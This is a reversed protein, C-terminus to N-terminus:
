VTVRVVARTMSTTASYTIHAKGDTPDRYAALLPIRVEGSAGVTYVRDPYTDGTPLSGPTALTVTHSSADGNRVELYHSGRGDGVEATDGAACAAFTPATGVVGLQQTAILTM